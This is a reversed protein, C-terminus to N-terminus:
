LIIPNLRLHNLGTDTRTIASTAIRVTEADASTEIISVLADLFISVDQMMGITPDVQEQSM